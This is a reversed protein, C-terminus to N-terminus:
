TNLQSQLEWINKSASQSNVTDQTGDIIAIIEKSKGTIVELRNLYRMVTASDDETAWFIHFLM